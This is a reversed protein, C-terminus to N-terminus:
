FPSSNFPALTTPKSSSKLPKASPVPICESLCDQYYKNESCGAIPDTCKQSSCTKTERNGCYWDFQTHIGGFPTPKTSVPASTIPKLTVPASTIPKLTVPKSYAKMPKTTLVPICEHLCDRYNNENESCGNLPDTCTQSSCTKATRNGCYWDYQTYINGHSPSSTSTTPKSNVPTSLGPNPQKQAPTFPNSPNSPHTSTPTPVPNKTGSVKVDTPALIPQWPQKISSIVPKLPIVGPKKAPAAKPQFFSTTPKDNVPKSLAPNPQKKAPTLPKSVPAFKPRFPQTAKVTANNNGSSAKTPIRAPIPASKESARHRPLQRSKIGQQRENFTVEQKYATVHTLQVSSGLLFIFLILLRM